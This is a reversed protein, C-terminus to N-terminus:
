SQRPEGSATSGTLRATQASAREFRPSRNYADSGGPPISLYRWTQGRISKAVYVIQGVHYAVHALSRHLAEHVALPQRRITVTRRLDEDTLEALTSLLPAWGANWAQLLESRSVARARFEEERERWPKEGDSALFDTFRSRLNGAVHWCIVAVSNGGNRGTVSLEADDLQDIAADALAKYRHYEDRISDILTM